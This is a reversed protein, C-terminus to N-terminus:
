RPRQGAGRLRRVTAELRAVDSELLSRVAAPTIGHRRSEVVDQLAAVEGWDIGPDRERVETPVGSAAQGIVALNYLVAQFAIQLGVDDGLSEALRSRKDAVRARAIADLIDNLREDVGGIPDMGGTM